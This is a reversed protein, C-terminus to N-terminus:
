EGQIKKQLVSSVKAKVVTKPGVEITEGNHPNRYTRAEQERPTLTLFSQLVVKEGQMLLDEIESIVDKLFLKVQPVTRDTQQAIRECLENHTM